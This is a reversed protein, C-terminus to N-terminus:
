GELPETLAFFVAEAVLSGLPWTGALTPDRDTITVSDLTPSGAIRGELQMVALAARISAALHRESTGTRCRRGLVPLWKKWYAVLVDLVRENVDRLWKGVEPDKSHLLLGYFLLDAPSDRWRELDGAATTRAILRMQNETPFRDLTPTGAEVAVIDDRYVQASVLRRGLERRFIALAEGKRRPANRGSPPFARYFAGTTLRAVRAKKPVSGRTVAAQRILETAEALVQEIGVFAFIDIPPHDKPPGRRIYRRVIREGAVLLAEATDGASQRPLTRTRTRSKPVKAAM